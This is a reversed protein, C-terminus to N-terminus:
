DCGDGMGMMTGGDGGGDGCRAEVHNVSTRAGRKREQMCASCVCVCICVCVCVIVHGRRTGHEILVSVGGCYVSIM